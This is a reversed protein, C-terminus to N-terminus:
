LTVLVVNGIAEVRVELTSSGSTLSFDRSRQGQPRLDDTFDTIHDNTIVTTDEDYLQLTVSTLRNHHLTTLIENWVPNPTNDKTTTKSGFFGSLKIFPDPTDYWHDPTTGSIITLEFDGDIETRTTAIM